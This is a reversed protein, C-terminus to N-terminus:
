IESDHEPSMGFTRNIVSLAQSMLINYQCVHEEIVSMFLYNVETGELKKSTFLPCNFRFM